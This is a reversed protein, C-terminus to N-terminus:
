RLILLAPLPVPILQLQLTTKGIQRPGKIVIIPALPHDLRQRLRDYPWRRFGPLVPMPRGRWWPNQRELDRCCACARGADLTVRGAARWPWGSVLRGGAEGPCRFIFIRSGKARKGLQSRGAVLQTM